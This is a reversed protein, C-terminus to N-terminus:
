LATIVVKTGAIDLETKDAAIFSVTGISVRFSRNAAKLQATAMHVKGLTVEIPEEVPAQQPVPTEPPIQEGISVAPKRVVPGGSPNFEQACVSCWKNKPNLTAPELPRSCTPCNM